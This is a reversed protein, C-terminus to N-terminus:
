ANPGTPPHLRTDLTFPEQMVSGYFNKALAPDFIL